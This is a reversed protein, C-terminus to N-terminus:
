RRRNQELATMTVTQDLRFRRGANTLEIDVGLLYGCSRPLVLGV